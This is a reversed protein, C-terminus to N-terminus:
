TGVIPQVTQRYLFEAKYKRVLQDKILMNNLSLIPTQSFRGMKELILPLNRKKKYNVIIKNLGM